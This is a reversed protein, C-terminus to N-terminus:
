FTMSAKILAVNDTTYRYLAEELEPNDGVYDGNKCVSNDEFLECAMVGKYFTEFVKRKAAIQFCLGGNVVIISM